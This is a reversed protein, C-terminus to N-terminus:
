NNSLNCKNKWDNIIAQYIIDTMTPKKYIGSKKWAKETWFMLDTLINQEEENARFTIIKVKM